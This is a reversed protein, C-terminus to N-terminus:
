SAFTRFGVTACKGPSRLWQRANPKSEPRRLKQEDDANYEIHMLTREIRLSAVSILTNDLPVSKFIRYLPDSEDSRSAVPPKPQNIEVSLNCNQGFASAWNSEIRMLMMRIAGASQGNEATEHQFPDADTTTVDIELIEASHNAGDFTPTANRKPFVPPDSEQCDGDGM